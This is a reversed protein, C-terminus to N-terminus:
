AGAAAKGKPPVTANPSPQPISRLSSAKKEALTPYASELVMRGYFAVLGPHKREIAKVFGDGLMRVGDEKVIRSHVAGKDDTITDPAGEFDVAVRFCFLYTCAIAALDGAGKAGYGLALRAEHSSMSRVTIIQPKGDLCFPRLHSADADEEWDKLKSAPIKPKGKDDRPIANDEKWISERVEDAVWGFDLGM